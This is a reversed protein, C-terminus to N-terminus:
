TGNLSIRTSIFGAGVESFTSMMDTFVKINELFPSVVAEVDQVQDRASAISETVATLNEAADGATQRTRSATLNKTIDDSVAPNADARVSM